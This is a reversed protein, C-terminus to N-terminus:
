PFKHARPHSLGGNSLARTIQRRSRDVSAQWLDYLYDPSDHVASSWDWGPEADWDVADFPSGPSEDFLRVTFYFDEVLALHKLLGGLTVTSPGVTVRLGEAHLGGSKWAFMARQRDLSGLLTAVEDGDVPPEPWEDLGAYM